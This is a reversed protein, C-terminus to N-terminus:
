RGSGVCSPHNPLWASISELGAFDDMKLDTPESDSFSAPRPIVGGATIRGQARGSAMRRHGRWTGGIVAAARARDWAV